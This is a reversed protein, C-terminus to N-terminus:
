RKKSTTTSRCPSRTATSTSSRPTSTTSARSRSRTAPHGRGHRLLGLRRRRDRLPQDEQGVRRDHEVDLPRLTRLDILEVDIGHDNVLARGGPPRRAAAAPRLQHDHRGQGAREVNAVGLPLTFDRRGASRRHREADERDRPLHGPRRLPDREQAPGEGRGAHEPRRRDPGPIRAYVSKWATALADRRAPPRHRQRRPLRDPVKFQGGSM